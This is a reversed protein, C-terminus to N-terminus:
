TKSYIDSLQRIFREHLKPLIYNVFVNDSLVKRNVEAAGPSFYAVELKKQHNLRDTFAIVHWRGDDMLKGRVGASRPLRIEHYPVEAMLLDQEAAWPMVRVDPAEVAARLYGNEARLIANEARLAAEQPTDFM